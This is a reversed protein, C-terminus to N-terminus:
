IPTRLSWLMGWVVRHGIAASTAEEEILNMKHNKVNDACNRVNSWINKIGQEKFSKPIYKAIDDQTKEGFFITQNNFQNATM